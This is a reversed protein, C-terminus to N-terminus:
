SLSNSEAFAISKSIKPHFLKNRKINVALLTKTKRFVRLRNIKSPPLKLSISHQKSTTNILNKLTVKNENLILTNDVPVEKLNEIVISKNHKKSLLYNNQANKKHAFMSFVVLIFLYLAYKM